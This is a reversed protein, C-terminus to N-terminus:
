IRLGEIYKKKDRKSIYGLIPERRDDVSEYARCECSM